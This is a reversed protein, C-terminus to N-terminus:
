ICIKQRHNPKAPQMWLLRPQESVEHDRSKVKGKTIFIMRHVICVHQDLGFSDSCCLDRHFVGRELLHSKEPFTWSYYFWQQKEEFTILFNHNDGHM